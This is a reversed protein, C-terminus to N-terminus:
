MRIRPTPPPAPRHLLIPFPLPLPLAPLLPLPRMLPSPACASVRPSSPCPPRPPARPTARAGPRRLPPAKTHNSALVCLSDTNREPRPLLSSLLYCACIFLSLRPARTVPSLSRRSPLAVKLVVHAGGSEAGDEVDEGRKQKKWLPLSYSKTVMRPRKSGGNLGFLLTSEPILTCSADFRVRAAAPHSEPGMAFTSAAFPASSTPTATSNGPIATSNLNSSSSPPTATYSASTRKSTTTTETTTTSSM